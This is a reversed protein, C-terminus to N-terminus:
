KSLLFKSIALYRLKTKEFVCLADDPSSVLPQGHLNFSTNLVAGIGTKKKFHRLLRYFNPNTRESVLQPRVTKDQPHTGALIEKVKPGGRFTMIMYYPDNKGLGELYEAADEELIACAFPMWFDRQKILDNIIQVNEWQCPNALISRNGLARAGFEEAGDFRAVIEGRALLEAVSENIDEPEKATFRKKRLCIKIEDDFFQRGLYFTHLPNSQGGLESYKQYAAGMSNTEDGCSPFVFVKKIDKIEMIKQNAKVNMFVGGGLCVTSIEERSVWYQIWKCLIEETFLQLGGCISDFRTFRSIEKISEVLPGMNTENVIKKNKIKLSGNEIDLLEWFSDAVRRSERLSAYPAMGMLKYEHELPLFGTLTTVIAWIMGLSNEDTIQCLVTKSGDKTVKTVSGCLGDGQNDNTFVLVSHGAFGSGHYAAAFHCTHHDIFSLRPIPVNPFHSSLLRIRKEKERIFVKRTDGGEGKHLLNLIKAEVIDKVKKGTLSYRGRLCDWFDTELLNQFDRHHDLRSYNKEHVFHRHGAFAIHDIKDITLNHIELISKIAKSPFGWFNKDRSLREEQLAGVIRGENLLAVSANHHDSVGLIKM